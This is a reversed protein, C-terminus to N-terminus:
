IASLFRGAAEGANVGSELAGNFTSTAMHDGCVLLGSPLEMGQFISCDRGGNINAAGDKGYHAPQANKIVYVGKQVWKSEDMIDETYEPFWTSLQKRVSADLADHDGAHESLANELVSVSCLEYGDPAYERQVISPFCVNNIPFDRTNRHLSGEGNLILVPDVLPAPAQFAYYICGVSRQPLKTLTEMRRDLGDIGNLLKESVNVDTAIIVSKAHLIQQGQEASAAEVKFEGVDSVGSCTHKISLARSGLQIDVGLENAKEGLQNAAAQMGGRPLSTSGVTFMKMVFHFMRSSQNELETLYIGQLFPTFFASIFDESFNYKERLCTLTDTEEMAFLEDISKTMVLYFLPLLRAKDLPSGVPSGIAKFIDRRRRLPDSVSALKDRGKLKVRAGPWFQKLGLADYDLLQKSLPYEEIFVAFGRDLIFGDTYDSRVRGGVASDSELILISPKSNNSNSSQRILTEAASIAATLGSIGGGIICLDVEKTSMAIPANRAFSSKRGAYGRIAAFFSETPAVLLILAVVALWM